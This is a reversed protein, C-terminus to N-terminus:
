IRFKSKPLRWATFPNVQGDFALSALAFTDLMQPLGIRRKYHNSILDMNYLSPVPMATRGYRQYRSLCAYYSGSNEVSEVNFEQYTRVPFETRDEPTLKYVSHASNVRCVDLYEVSDLVSLMNLYSGFPIFWDVMWSLPAGEYLASPINGLQFNAAIESFQTKPKCVAYFRTQHHTGILARNWSVPVGLDLVRGAATKVPVVFTHNYEGVYTSPKYSEGYGDNRFVFDDKSMLEALALAHDEIDKVFPRWGYRYEMWKQAPTLSAKWIKRARSNGKIGLSKCFLRFSKRDRKYVLNVLYGFSELTSRVLSVTKQAEAITVWSQATNRLRKSFAELAYFEAGTNNDFVYGNRYLHLGNRDHTPYDTSYSKPSVTICANVLTAETDQSGYYQEQMSDSLKNWRYGPVHYKVKINSKPPLRSGKPKGKGFPYSTNYVTDSGFGDNTHLLDSESIYVRPLDYSLERNQTIMDAHGYNTMYGLTEEVYIGFDTVTTKRKMTM